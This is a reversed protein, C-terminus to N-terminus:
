RVGMGAADKTQFFHSPPAFMYCPAEKHPIDWQLDWQDESASVVNHTILDDDDSIPVHIMLQHQDQPGDNAMLDDDAGTDQDHSKAMLDDDDGTDQDHSKAMLDDDDGTD